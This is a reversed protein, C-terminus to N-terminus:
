RPEQQNLIVPAPRPAIVDLQAPVRIQNGIGGGRIGVEGRAPLPLGDLDGPRYSAITEPQADKDVVVGFWPLMMEQGTLDGWTVGSDPAPNFPNNASNDHHATVVMRTGQPVKIPEKLEYGLQWNFNFKANLVTQERGDPYYLRFSM